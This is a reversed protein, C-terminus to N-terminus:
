REQGPGALLPCQEAAFERSPLLEQVSVPEKGDMAEMWLRRNAESLAQLTITGSRSLEGVSLYFLFYINNKIFLLSCNEGPKCPKSPMQICVMEGKM